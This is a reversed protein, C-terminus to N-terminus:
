GAMIRDQAVLRPSSRLRQHFLYLAFTMSGLWRIIAAAPVLFHNPGNPSLMLHSCMSLSVHPRPMLPGPHGSEKFPPDELLAFTRSLSNKIFCRFSPLALSAFWLPTASRAGAQCRRSVHCALFGLLWTRVLLVMTSAAILILVLISLARDRGRALAPWPRVPDNSRAVRRACWLDRRSSGSPM